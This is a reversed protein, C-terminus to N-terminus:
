INPSDLSSSLNFDKMKYTWRYVVPEKNVEDFYQYIRTELEKKNAVRIGRLMQKTMKGFFSEILNLWSGHKPTYVFEFRGGKRGLYEKVKGCTHVSLNDLILGIKDGVPYMSDVKELWEIFATSDHKESVLPIAIGTQLDVGALLALTGHRRYERDRVCEGNGQGPAKDRSGGIAQINPKEDYSLTHTFAGQYPLINGDEDFLMEVQKYVVLVEHMKEEFKEDRKECYYKVKFPKIGKENLILHVTSKSISALRPFGAQAANRRIHETLQKYTWLEAAYGCECPKM